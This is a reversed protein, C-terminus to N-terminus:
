PCAEVCVDLAPIPGGVFPVQLAVIEDAYERACELAACSVKNYWSRNGYDSAQRGMPEYKTWSTNAGSSQNVFSRGYVFATGPLM